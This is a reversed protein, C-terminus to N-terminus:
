VQLEMYFPYQACLYNMPFCLKVILGMASGLKPDYSSLIQETLLIVHPKPHCNSCM